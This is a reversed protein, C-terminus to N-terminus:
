LFGRQHGRAFFSVEGAKLLSSICLFLTPHHGNQTQYSPRFSSMGVFPDNALAEKLGM